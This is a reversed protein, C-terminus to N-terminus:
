DMEFLDDDFQKEQVPKQEKMKKKENIMQSWMALADAFDNSDEDNYDEYKTILPDISELIAPIDWEFDNM